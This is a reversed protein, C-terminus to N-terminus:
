GQGDHLIRQLTQQLWEVTYPKTVVGSFGYQAFNAMIPDNTYGSSILAKVQPDLARLHEIAEKGGLGGPVTIDLIVAAFPQKTALARQYAAVAEAGHRTCEVEYGLTTLMESLLERIAAEDDMVLVRGTNSNLTIPAGPMPQVAHESAPLYIAFATGVGVESEATIYGDHKAVIAYVTALGLGSGHGKTTFYPDFIRPLIDAPIGCGRDSVTIKLYRGAQLPLGSETDIVVNEAQVQVSGGNPMAQAANRVVNHIVQNLQGVDADIPWLNEAITLEARVKSGRLAFLTSERLLDAISVTQRVPAGGKSFTLLQQTLATARQCAQEAATLRRRVRQDTDVFMKALSINGLIGTLLNNFDHAIGGALVGISEMKRTRLLEEELRKHATVDRFVVVVGCLQGDRRWIPACSDAIAIEGGHRTILATQPALEVVREERLVRAIPSDMSQRTQQHILRFVDDIHHGLVEQATWGTLAAAVPNIFTIMGKTDTAIVGDGISALTVELWEQQQLLAEQAQQRERQLRVIEIANLIARQLMEPTLAEKVLYDHVGRKMAEVAIIENGLGTLMVIPVRKDNTLGSLAQLFELGDIGPLRYDLLVCDFAVEQVLRLGRAGDMAEHVEVELGTQRLARGVALRDVVDDDILLIRLPM